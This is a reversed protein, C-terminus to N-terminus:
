KYPDIGRMAKATAIADEKNLFILERDLWLNDFNGGWWIFGTYWDEQYLDPVFYNKGSEPAESEPAPVEFGNITKTKKAIRWILLGSFKPSNGAEVWGISEAFYEVSEGDAYAKFIEPEDQLDLIRLDEPALGSYARAQERNM